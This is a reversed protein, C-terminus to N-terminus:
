TPSPRSGQVVSGMAFGPLASYPKLCDNFLARVSPQPGFLELEATSMWRTQCGYEAFLLSLKSQDPTSSRFPLRIRQCTM